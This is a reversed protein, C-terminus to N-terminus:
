HMDVLSICSNKKIDDLIASSVIINDARFKSGRLKLVFSLKTCRIDKNYKDKPSRIRLQLIM